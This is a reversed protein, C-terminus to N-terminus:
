SSSLAQDLAALLEPERAPKQLFAVAGHALALRRTRADAHGTLFVIPLTIRKRALQSQLDLGSGGPMRLDLLLCGPEDPDLQALFEEASAFARVTFGCSSLLRYMARRLAEDDDVLFVTGREGVTEADATESQPTPSKEPRPEM